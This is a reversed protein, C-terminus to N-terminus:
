NQSYVTLVPRRNAPTSARSIKHRTKMVFRIEDREIILCTLQGSMYSGTDINIRNHYAEPERVPTHGHVVIKGFNEKSSLFDNRIWLLDEEQQQALPVGPKVGAHAFFFDGCSFSSKLGKLFHQHRDPLVSGLMKALEAQETATSNLSPRLGYSMLTELGGLQQWEGLIKPNELFKLLYPDHNGRLFVCEHARRYSSLRDVVEASDPGRDIYDGLFVQIARLPPHAMLDAEVYALAQDLLDACGHVDGIAYIRTGDPVAAFDRPIQPSSFLSRWVM